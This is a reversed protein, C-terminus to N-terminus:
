CLKIRPTSRVRSVVSMVAYGDHKEQLRDEDAILIVRFGLHEVYTSVVGMLQELSMGCREIDDFVLTRDPQVNRRMTANLWEAAAGGLSALGGVNKAADGAAGVIVELKKLNPAYAAYVAAHAENPEQLGFLSVYYCDDEKVYQRVQHTKGVGWAGTVLVAYGPEQLEQYYALYEKLHQTM